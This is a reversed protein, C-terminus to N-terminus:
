LANMCDEILKEPDQNQFVRAAIGRKGFRQV